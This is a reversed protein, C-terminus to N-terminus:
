EVPSALFDRTLKTAEKQTFHKKREQSLAGAVVHPAYGVLARADEILREVTFTEDEEKPEPKTEAKADPQKVDDAVPDEEKEPRTKVALIPM